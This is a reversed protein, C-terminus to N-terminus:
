LSVLQIFNIVTNKVYKKISQFDLAGAVKNTTIIVGKNKIHIFDAMIDSKINKLARNINTVYSSLNNM